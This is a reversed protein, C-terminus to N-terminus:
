SSINFNSFSTNLMRGSHAHAVCGGFLRFHCNQQFPTSNCVFNFNLDSFTVFGKLHSSQCISLAHGQLNIKSKLGFYLIPRTPHRLLKRLDVLMATQIIYLICLLIVYGVPLTVYSLTLVSRTVYYGSTIAM